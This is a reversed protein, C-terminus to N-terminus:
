VWRQGLWRPVTSKYQRYAAGFKLELAREERPAMVGAGICMVICGLLVAVSGFLIAWGLWLGMEALYMPHRSVAYPGRSLFVKPSWDLAVREPLEAGLSLGLALLWALVVIGALIPLLGLLNWPAPHGDAWGYRHGFLSLAWPLVGHLLPIAVLFVFVGLARAVWRPIALTHSARM